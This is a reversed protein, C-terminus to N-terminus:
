QTKDHNVYKITSDHMYQQSTEEMFSIYCTEGNKKSEILKNRYSQPLLCKTANWCIQITNAM